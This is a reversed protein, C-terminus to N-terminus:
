SDSISFSEFLFIHFTSLWMVSFNNSQLELIDDKLLIRTVLINDCVTYEIYMINYGKVAIFDLMGWLM